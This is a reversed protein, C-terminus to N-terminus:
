SAIPSRTDSPQTNEFQEDLEFIQRYLDEGYSTELPEGEVIRFTRTGDARREARWFICSESKGDFFGHAFEYLHTVYFIKIRTELLARVIQRAIESGERENTAAFSENFLVMSNPVLHDVLESMRAIEEDFKGSKMTTDEERRYQTFLSPCLEAHFSDAGVFMGCQMMLQALGISRLFSSKGGQNAGTVILLSKGDADGSNSVVKRELRLSLCVDYLGSFRHRREGTSVPIPFCVREEKAALREYLNLGGVYFALEMQLMKFFSMVHDSSRALAIAVRSIARHQMDSLIRPGATDREALRFNYTPPGKGLIRQLWSANKGLPQRLVYNTGENYEGLEASLLVGKRFKLGALHQQITGLYEEGLERRLMAFLGSFAESEFIAAQEEAITRLRRLTDLSSELLGVSSYLMSSPYHSSMGWWHKKTARLVDVMLNYLEQVVAPNKLCDKLAAQRYLITDAGNQIGSLLAKRTIGFLYEDDGAMARLLTNLELDQVLAHENWPMAGEGDFDKDRHMLFVKM